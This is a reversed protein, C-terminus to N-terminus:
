RACSPAFAEIWRGSIRIPRSRRSRCQQGPGGSAHARRARRAAPNAGLAVRMVAARVTAVAARGTHVGAESITVGAPATAAVVLQRNGVGSNDVAGDDVAGKNAHGERVARARAMIAGRGAGVV